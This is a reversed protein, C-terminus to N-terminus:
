PIDRACRFGVKPWASDSAFFGRYVATNKGTNDFAGGRLIKYNDSDPPEGKGGPYNAFPSATWEWVNGVMDLAGCPSAGTRFSGVPAPTGTKGDKGLNGKAPDFDNGWPFLRGDTGRAALEWEAETPLRKKAWKAYAVADDWTVYVVPWQETGPKPAGNVWGEKPPAHGTADIFAKYEANTVETQDLFYAKVDAKHAPRSYVDAAPDDTGLMFSAAPVYVMGEPPTPTAPTEVPPTPTPAPQPAPTPPNAVTEAPKMMRWAVVAAVAGGLVVLLVVAIAIWKLSSGSGTTPATPEPFASAPVPHLQGTPM